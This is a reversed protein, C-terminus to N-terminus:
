NPHAQDFSRAQPRLLTMAKSVQIPDTTAL